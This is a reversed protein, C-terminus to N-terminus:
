DATSSHLPWFIVIIKGATRYPHSVHDRVNLSSCLSLTNSFLTSLLVNPGFPPSTVPPHLFSCWSSSCLKNEESLIIPIILDLLILHTPCTARIPSFLFTCLNNIPFDSPFLGSPLGLHLHISLMFPGKLSLISDQASSQDPEPYTCTSLEQSCSLSGEPEM